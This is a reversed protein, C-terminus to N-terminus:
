SELPKPPLGTEFSLQRQGDPLLSILYVYFKRLFRYTCEGYGPKDRFWDVQRTFADVTFDELRSPTFGLSQVFENFFPGNMHQTDSWDDMERMSERLLRRCFLSDTDFDVRRVIEREYYCVVWLDFGPYGCDELIGGMVRSWQQPSSAEIGEWNEAAWTFLPDNDHYGLLSSALLASRALEGFRYVGNSGGRYQRLMIRDLWGRSVMRHERLDVFPDLLEMSLHELAYKRSLGRALTQMALITGVCQDFERDGTDCFVRAVSHDVRGLVYSRLGVDGALGGLCLDYTTSISQENKKAWERIGLGSDVIQTILGSSMAISKPSRRRM